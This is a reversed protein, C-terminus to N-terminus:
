ARRRRRGALMGAMGLLAASGPAPVVRTLVRVQDLDYVPSVTDFNFNLTNGSISIVSNLFPFSQMGRGAWGTPYVTGFSGLVPDSTDVEFDNFAVGIIQGSFSVSGAAQGFQDFHMFHSDVLGGVPGPTPTTSVSPNVTMDMPLTFSLNVGQQEDWILVKGGTPLSGPSCNLPSPIQQVAGSYGSISASATGAVALVLGIGGALTFHRM